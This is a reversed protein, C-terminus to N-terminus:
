FLRKLVGALRGAIAANIYIDLLYLLVVGQVGTVDIREPADSNNSVTYCSYIGQLPVFAVITPPCGESSGAASFASSDSEIDSVREKRSSRQATASGTAAAALATDAKM